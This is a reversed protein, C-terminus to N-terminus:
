AAEAWTRTPSHMSAILATVGAGSAEGLGFIRGDASFLEIPQGPFAKLCTALHAASLTATFPRLIEAGCEAVADVPALDPGFYQARVTVGDGKASISVATARGIAAISVAEALDDANVRLAVSREPILRSITPHEGALTAGRACMGEAEIRWQTPSLFLRAGPRMLSAPFITSVDCSVGIHAGIHANTADAGHPGFSVGRLHVRADDTACFPALVSLAVIGEPVEVANQAETRVPFDAASLTPLSVRARPCEVRLMNGDLHVTLVENGLSGVFHRFDAANVAIEGPSSVSAGCTASVEMDLCTGRLTLRDGAEILLCDLVPITNRGTMGQAAIAACDSLAKATAQFKM